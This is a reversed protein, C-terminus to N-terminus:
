HTLPIEVCSVSRPPLPLSLKGSAVHFDTETIRSIQRPEGPRPQDHLRGVLSYRRATGTFEGLDSADISLTLSKDYERNIIHLFLTKDDASALTDLYAVKDSPHIDGMKFPQRYTPVGSTELDLLRSGHHASYLAMLQGTPM